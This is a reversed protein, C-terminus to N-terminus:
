PHPAATRTARWAILFPIMWVGDIMAGIFVPGIDLRGALNLALCTAFFALKELVCVLMLPRYRAPDRSIVFFVIQWVLATGYFGYYFEPRVDTPPVFVGPALVIVGYISAVLFIWRALVM